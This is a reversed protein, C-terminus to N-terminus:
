TLRAYADYFVHITVMDISRRVRTPAAIQDILPARTCPLQEQQPTLWATMSAARKKSSHESMPLDHAAVHEIDWVPRYKSEFM